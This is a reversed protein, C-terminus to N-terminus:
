GCILGHRKRPQHIRRGSSIEQVGGENGAKTPLVVRIKSVCTLTKTYFVGCANGATGKEKGKYSRHQKNVRELGINIKESPAHRSSV